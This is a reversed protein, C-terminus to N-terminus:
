SASRRVNVIGPAAFLGFGTGIAIRQDVDQSPSIPNAQRNAQRDLACLALVQVELKL